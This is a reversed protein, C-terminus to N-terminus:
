SVTSQEIYHGVEYTADSDVLGVPTQLAKLSNM